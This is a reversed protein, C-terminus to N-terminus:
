RIAGANKKANLLFRVPCHDPLRYRLADAERFGMRRFGGPVMAPLLQRSVLIHDISRTFGAGIHCNRFPVGANAFVFPAAAADDGSLLRWFDDGGVNADGRNFDGLLIFRSNARAAIWAALQAAQAALVSCASSGSDLARDACGSKLHVALLEVTQATGPFLLLSIGNRQTGALSISEVPSGCRHAVGSRIAFGVHQVGRGPAICIRYGEFIRAAIGADEVEQFAIVDADLRRAYWALRALDASDRSLERAVDCPLIARHGRRCALRAGHATAPSVLWELNWTAIAIAPRAADPQMTAAALSLLLLILLLIPVAKRRM